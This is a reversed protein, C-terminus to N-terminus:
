DAREFSDIAKRVSGFQTLLQQARDMPIDLAESVMRAGRQVLKENALQMDVMRNGLVHGCRIMIGTSLQNLILKQATGAKLRTSGTVFEPGTDAVLPLDVSHALQGQPNSSIGLTLIGQERSWDVAGLVYPTRGSAAIGVVVDGKKAHHAKLDRTGGNLDDEAGEVAQRIAGDGGAILGIFTGEVGFTPPIESADLIGLRGSTGAGLYFVRGGDAVRQAAAEIAKAIHPKIAEVASQAERDCQSMAEAIAAPDMSELADWAGPRETPSLRNMKSMTGFIACRGSSSTIAHRLICVNGKQFHPRSMLFPRFRGIAM